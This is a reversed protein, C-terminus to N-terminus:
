SAACSYSYIRESVLQPHRQADVVNIDVLKINLYQDVSILTGTIAIDNKLEICVQKGV